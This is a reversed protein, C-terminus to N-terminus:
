AIIKFSLQNVVKMKCMRFYHQQKEPTTPNIVTFGYKLAVAPLGNCKWSGDVTCTELVVGFGTAIIVVNVPTSRAAFTHYKLYEGHLYNTFSKIIVSESPTVVAAM